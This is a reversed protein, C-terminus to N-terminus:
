DDDRAGIQGMVAQPLARIIGDDNPDSEDLPHLAMEVPRLTQVRVLKGTKEDVKHHVGVVRFMSIMQVCDDISLAIDCLDDLPAAGSMKVVTHDVPRGEFNPPDYNM